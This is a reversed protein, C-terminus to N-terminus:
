VILKLLNYYMLFYNKIRVFKGEMQKFENLKSWMYNKCNFHELVKPLTWDKPLLGLYELKEANTEANNFLHRLNTIMERLAFSDQYLNANIPDPITIKLVAVKFLIEAFKDSVQQVLNEAQVQSKTKYLAHQKYTPLDLNTLINDIAEKNQSAPMFESGCSILHSSITSDTRQSCGIIEQSTVKKQELIRVSRRSRKTNDAINSEKISNCQQTTEQSASSTNKKQLAIKQCLYNDCRKCIKDGPILNLLLDTSANECLELSLIRM